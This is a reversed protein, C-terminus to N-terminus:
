QIESRGAERRHRGYALSWTNGSSRWQLLGWRNRLICSRTLPSFVQNKPSPFIVVLPFIDLFTKHHLPIKLFFHLGGSTPRHFWKEDEREWFYIIYPIQLGWIFSFNLYWAYRYSYEWKWTNPTWDWLDGRSIGRWCFVLRKEVRESCWQLSLKLQNEKMVLNVNTSQGSGWFRCASRGWVNAWSCFWFTEKMIKAQRDGTLCFNFVFFVLCSNKHHKKRVTEICFDRAKQLWVCSKPLINRPSCRKSGRKKTACTKWFFCRAVSKNSWSTDRHLIRERWLYIHCLLQAAGCFLAAGDAGWPGWISGM